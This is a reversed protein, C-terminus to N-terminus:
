FAKGVYAKRLVEAIEGRTCKRPNTRTSRDLYAADAMSELAEYFDGESVGAERLSSPIHMHRAMRSVTRILNLVSQRKNSSGLGVYRSLEAYEGAAPTLSDSCGANFSMVYPLLIANARGHPIHFRAGVAHAAGHVLGLGANSFAIGALCSATHVKQRAVLNGPEVYVALMDKLVLKAAREAPAKSFDNAGTSVYAEIAHTLVDMATDATVSPPVSVVLSADLVAADPILQDDVLAHKVQSATDSIVAFKSVESGTGSTTPVAILTCAAVGTKDAFFVIAKATDIASGGGFAVVADPLFNGYRATGRSVTEIDPDAAVDSFVEYKACPELRETVYRIKGSKIMFSDTVILVREFCAVAERLSDGLMIKTKVSFVEMAKDGRM